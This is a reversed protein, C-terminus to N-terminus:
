KVTVTIAKWVGNIGVVYIKCTGAKKATIKGSTSVTAITSDTSLYRYTAAHGSSLMKKGSKVVKATPKITYTSGKKISVSTKPVTISKANTYKGNKSLDGSAFHGAYSTSITTWTGNIKRQAKVVFKYYTGSKLGSQTYTLSTTTAIKVNTKGCPAGYVVYRQANPVKLWTYTM